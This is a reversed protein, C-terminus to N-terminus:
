CSFLLQTTQHLMKFDEKSITKRCIFTRLWDIDCQKCPSVQPSARATARTDVPPGQDARVAAPAGQHDHPRLARRVAHVRGPRQPRGQHQVAHGPRVGRHLWLDARLPRDAPVQSDGVSLNMQNCIIIIRKPFDVDGNTLPVFGPVNTLLSGNM